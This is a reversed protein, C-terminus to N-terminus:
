GPQGRRKRHAREAATQLWYGALEQSGASGTYGNGQLYAPLLIRAEDLVADDHAVCGAFTGGPTVLQVEDQGAALQALRARVDGPVDLLLM